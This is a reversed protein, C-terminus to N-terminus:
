DPRVALTLVVELGGGTRNEAHISGGHVRAVREAIALGLGVGGSERDRADAVRYFPRFINALEVSPVGPGRDSVRIVARDGSSGQRCERCVDVTTGRATYRIANRIVNEIASRLLDPNADIDCLGNCVFDVRCNREGAEWQADAVIDSVLAASYRAGVLSSRVVLFQLGALSGTIADPLSFALFATDEDRRLVRFPLVILRTVSRTRPEEASHGALLALKLEDAMAAATPYRAAPEKALARHIVRDVSRIRSALTEGHLLEM